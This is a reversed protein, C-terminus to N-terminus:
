FQPEPFQMRFNVVEHAVEEPDAKENLVDAIFGAAIAMEQEEMGLRTLEQSGLRIGRPNRVDKRLEQPMLQPSVIINSNALLVGAERSRM